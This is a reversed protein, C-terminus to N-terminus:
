SKSPKSQFPAKRSPNKPAAKTPWNALELVESAAKRVQSEQFPEDAIEEWAAGSLRRAAWEFRLRPPANLRRGKRGAGRTSKPLPIEEDLGINVWFRCEVLFRNRQQQWAANAAKEWQGPSQKPRDFDPPQFPPPSAPQGLSAHEQPNRHFKLVFDPWKSDPIGLRQLAEIILLRTRIERNKSAAALQGAVPQKSPPKLVEILRPRFPSIPPLHEVALDPLLNWHQADSLHTQRLWGLVPKSLYNQSHDHVLRARNLAEEVERLKRQAGSEASRLGLTVVFGLRNQADRIKAERILWEWDLDYYKVVLWPLSELVRVEVDHSIAALLVVAPNFRPRGSLHQFADHGLNALAKALSKSNWSRVADVQLPLATPGLCYLDVMKLGIQQTVRRCGTEMMALYAQSVGLHKAAQQQTLDVAERALKLQGPKLSAM